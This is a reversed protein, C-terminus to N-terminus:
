AAAVAVKKQGPAEVVVEGRAQARRLLEESIWKRAAESGIIWFLGLQEDNLTSLSKIVDSDM